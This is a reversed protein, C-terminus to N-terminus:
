VREPAWHQRLSPLAPNLSPQDQNSASSFCLCAEQSYAKVWAPHNPGFRDTSLLTVSLLESPLMTTSKFGSQLMHTKHPSLWCRGPSNPAQPLSHMSDCLGLAEQHRTRQHALGPGRGLVGHHWHRNTQTQKTPDLDGRGLNKSGGEGPDLIM